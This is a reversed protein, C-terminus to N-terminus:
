IMDNESMAKKTITTAAPYPAGPNATKEATAMIM